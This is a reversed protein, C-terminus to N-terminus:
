ASARPHRFCLDVADPEEVGVYPAPHREDNQVPAETVVMLVDPVRVPREFSGQADDVRILAPVSAGVPGRELRDRDRLEGIVDFREAVMGTEIAESEGAM